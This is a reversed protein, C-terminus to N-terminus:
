QSDYFDDLFNQLCSGPWSESEAVLINTIFIYTMSMKSITFWILDHHQWKIGQLLKLANCFASCTFAATILSHKTSNQFLWFSFVNTSKHTNADLVVHTMHCAPLLCQFISPLFPTELINFTSTLYEYRSLPCWEIRKNVALWEDLDWGTVAKKLLRANRHRKWFSM